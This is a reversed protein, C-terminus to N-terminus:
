RCGCKVDVARVKTGRDSEIRATAPSYFVEPASLAPTFIRVWKREAGSALSAFGILSFGSDM